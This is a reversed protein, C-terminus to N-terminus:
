EDGHEDEEIRDGCEECYSVVPVDPVTPNTAVVTAVIAPVLFAMGVAGLRPEIEAGPTVAVVVHGIMYIMGIRYLATSISSWNITTM